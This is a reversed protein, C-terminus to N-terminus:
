DQSAPVFGYERFTRRADEGQLFALFRRAADPHLSAALVAAPYVIPEHAGEPVTAVVVVRDRAQADTLYVLGLDVNGTAVYGLAVRVDGGYVLRPQVEAWIGLAQLAERAYRGAPALEPDAIALKDHAKILAQVSAPGEPGVDDAGTVLVLVNTLLAVRSVADLLGENELADMPGPGASVFADAPAGRM